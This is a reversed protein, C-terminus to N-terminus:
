GHIGPYAIRPEETSTIVIKVKDPYKSPLELLRPLLEEAISLGQGNDVGYHVRDLM